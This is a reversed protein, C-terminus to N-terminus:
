SFLEQQLTPDTPITAFKAPDQNFLKNLADSYGTVLHPMRGALEQLVQRAQDENKVLITYTKRDSTRLTVSWTVGTKIGNRRHTVQRVYAWLVQPCDLLISKAGDNFLLYRGDTRVGLVPETAVYFEELIPLSGDALARKTIQKQYRGTLAKLLLGAAWLLLLVGAVTMIVAFPADSGGVKGQKIIYPLFEEDLEGGDAFYEQYLAVTEADMREVTGEIHYYTTVDDILGDLYDWSENMQDDVQDLDRAPVELAIYEKDNADIVYDRSKTTEYTSGERRSTTEAYWDYIVYVDAEVYRGVLDEGHYDYLWDPGKALQFTGKVGLGLCVAALIALCIVGPLIRKTSISKLEKLM